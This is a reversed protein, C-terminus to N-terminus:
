LVTFLSSQLEELFKVVSVLREKNVDQVCSVPLIDAIIKVSLFFFFFFYYIFLYIFLYYIYIFYDM